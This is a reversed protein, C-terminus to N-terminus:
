RVDEYSSTRTKTVNKSKADQRKAESLALGYRNALLNATDAKGTVREGIQAALRLSLAEAFKMSWLTPDTIQRTYELFPDEYNVAIAAVLTTPSICERYEIPDPDTSSDDLFLKRIALCKTPKAYLYEWGTLIESAILTPTEIFTAFGWPHDALVSDRMSDFVTRCAEANPSNEEMSSIPGAQLYNLAINCIEVDSIM